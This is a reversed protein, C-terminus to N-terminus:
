KDETSIKAKVKKFNCFVLCLAILTTQLIYSNLFQFLVVYTLNPTIYDSTIVSFYDQPIGNINVVVAIILFILFVSFYKYRAFLDNSLDENYKKRMFLSLVVIIVFEIVQFIRAASIDFFNWSCYIIPIFAVYVLLSMGFIKAAIKNYMSNM